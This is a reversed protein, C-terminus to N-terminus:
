FKVGFIRAGHASIRHHQRDPNLRGGTVLGSADRDDIYDVLNDENTVNLVDFRLYFAAFDGIEFDKTIQLDLSKYGM